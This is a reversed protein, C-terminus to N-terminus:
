GFYYNSPNKVPMGETSLVGVRCRGKDESNFVESDVLLDELFFEAEFAARYKISMLPKGKVLSQDVESCPQNFIISDDTYTMISSPIFVTNTKCTSVFNKVIQPPFYFFPYAPEIISVINTETVTATELNFILSNVTVEWSKESVTPLLTMTNEVFADPDYGGFKVM